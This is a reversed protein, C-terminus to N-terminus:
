GEEGGTAEEGEAAEEGAEGAEAEEIEEKAGRAIHISVLPQDHGKGHSLEVLEAGQPLVLDSLHLTGDLELTSMDIEIFEPLDKPLCSVEVETISHTVLGGEKVGPAKDENMFHVPVHVRIKETASVRQLDMHLVAPKSPHRHLDKVIAQEEKGDIKVTLIHSFFAEKELQHMLEIHQLTISIPEKGGGYLIVPVQGARRLRRSAGKGRESRPQAELVFSTSM